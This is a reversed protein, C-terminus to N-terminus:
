RSQLANIAARVLGRIDVDNPRRKAIEAELVKLDAVRGAEQLVPLLNLEPEIDDFAATARMSEYAAFATAVEKESPPKSATVISRFGVGGISSLRVMEVSRSLKEPTAYPIDDVTPRNGSLYEGGAATVVFTAPGAWAEVKKRGLYMIRVEAGPSLRFRDGQRVRMYAQAKFAGVEGNSYTAEGKLLSVLGVDSPQQALANLSLGLLGVLWIVSFFCRCQLLPPHAKMDIEM